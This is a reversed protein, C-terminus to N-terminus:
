RPLLLLLLITLCLAICLAICIYRFLKKGKEGMRDCFLQLFALLVTMSVQIVAALISRGEFYNLIGGLAFVGSLIFWLYWKSM